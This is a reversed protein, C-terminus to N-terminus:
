MTLNLTNTSKTDLLLRRGRKVITTTNSVDAPHGGEMAIVKFFIYNYFFM